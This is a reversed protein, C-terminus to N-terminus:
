AAAYQRQESRRPAHQTAPAVEDHAEAHSVQAAHDWAARIAQMAEDVTLRSDGKIRFWNACLSKEADEFCGGYQAYGIYGVCYAPAYDEYECERRYYSEGWYVTQWFADHVQPDVRGDIRVAPEDQQEAWTDLEMANM